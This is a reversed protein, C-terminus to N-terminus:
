IGVSNLAGLYDIIRKIEELKSIKFDVYDELGEFCLGRGWKMQVTWAGLKKAPVLDSGIRDGIVVLQSPPIDMENCIKQYHSGKDKLDSVIIKSFLQPEIGAKELKKYQISEHGRTVLMLTHDKLDQLLNGAGPLPELPFKEPLAVEYIEKIGVDLFSKDYEGLSFFIRLAEETSLTKKNLAWLQFRARTFDNVVLGSDIMKKLAQELRFPTLSGTTDILTDDLDFIIWL